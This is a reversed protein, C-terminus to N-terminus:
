AEGNNHLVKPIFIYLIINQYSLCHAARDIRNLLNQLNAKLDYYSASDNPLFAGNSSQM